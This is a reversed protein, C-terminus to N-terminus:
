VLPLTFWFTSGKGVASEVGVQGGHQEVLMRAIYLGVGLGQGPAGVASRARQFRTWISEQEEPSIGPGHDRVDVRVMGREMGMKVEIPQDESSYRVANTLYNDIVQGLRDADVMVMVPLSRRRDVTITRTPALLRQEEVCAVVLADLQYPKRDLTLMGASVQSLDMLQRILRSLRDLNRGTTQLAAVVQAFPVAQQDSALDMRAVARQLHRQALQVAMQSAAVPTRLDHAAIAFFTDLRENVERVALENARAEERERALQNHETQDRLIGVAGVIRGEQDRLPVASASLEMEQGDRTRMQLDMANSGTLVEGRLAHVLPMEEPALPHGHGDRVAFHAVREAVSQQSFGLPAIDLGLIRRQAANARVIRGQADYVVLGDPMAEFIRDLQNAQRVAEARAAEAERRAVQEQEILHNSDSAPQAGLTVEASPVPRQQRQRSTMSIATGHHRRRGTTHTSLMVVLILVILQKTEKLAYSYAV